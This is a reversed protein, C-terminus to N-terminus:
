LGEDFTRVGLNGNRLNMGYGHPFFEFFSFKRALVPLALPPCVTVTIVRDLVDFMCSRGGTWPVPRQNLLRFYGFHALECLVDRTM